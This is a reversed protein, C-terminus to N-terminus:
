SLEAPLAERNAESKFLPEVSLQMEIPSCADLAKEALWVAKVQLLRPVLVTVSVTRSRELLGFVQVEVTVTASVIFGVTVQAGKVRLRLEATPAPDAVKVGALMVPVEASLQPTVADLRDLTVKVQASAPALLTV